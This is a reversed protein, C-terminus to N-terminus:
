VSEDQTTSPQEANKEEKLEVYYKKLIDINAEILYAAPIIIARSTGIKILKKPIRTQM